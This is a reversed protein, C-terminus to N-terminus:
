WCMAAVDALKGVGTRGIDAGFEVQEIGAEALGNLVVQMDHGLGHVVSVDIELGGVGVVADIGGALAVEAAELVEVLLVRFRFEGGDGVFGGLGFGRWGIDDM